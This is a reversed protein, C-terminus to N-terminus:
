KLKETIKAAIQEYAKTYPSEPASQVIPTGADANSRIDYHLPIEGLFDVRYKEATKKAGAHGFIDARHGCKECIYYSMNEIIGLVPVGITKFLNIGKVADILAVDQPTSVIVAGSFKIKQSLTIQIDGTGPPMDIVMVDIDGWDTQTLLQQIAGCAKPGRWILPTDESILSGISMSKIGCEAFPEFIEGDVSSPPINEYGLMLPISPGYIDADFLAVKLNQNALALALNVATTSKGVGGKGSAVAIIHKVGKIIWHEPETPKDKKDEVFVINIKQAANIASLEAKIADAKTNDEPAKLKIVLREGLVKVSDIKESQFHRLIIKKAIEEASM